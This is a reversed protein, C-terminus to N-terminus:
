RAKLFDMRDKRNTLLAGDIGLAIKGDAVPILTAGADAGPLLAAMGIETISPLTGFVPAVSAAFGDGLNQALERAMEYRLADVLVYATKGDERASVVYRRFVERQRPVDPLRYGATALADVFRDALDS